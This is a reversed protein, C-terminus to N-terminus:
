RNTGITVLQERTTRDLTALVRDARRVVEAFAEGDVPTLLDLGTRSALAELESRDVHVDRCLHCDHLPGTLGRSRPDLDDRLLAHVGLPGWLAIVAYLPTRRFRDLLVDLPEDAASGLILPSARDFDASTPSISVIGDHDVEIHGVLHCGALQPTTWQLATPPLCEGRGVPHAPHTYVVADTRRELESVLQLATFDRNGAPVAIQVEVGVDHAARWAEVVSDVPVFPLHWRDTSLMLLDLGADALQRMWTDARVPRNGWYGNSCIRPALGVSRAHRVLDLTLDFRAMPEGGTFIVGDVHGSAAAEGLVRRGLEAEIWGRQDPGSSSGCHGCAAVCYRSLILGFERIPNHTPPLHDM